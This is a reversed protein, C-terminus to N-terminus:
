VGMDEYFYAKKSDADDWTIIKKHRNIWYYNILAFDGACMTTHMFLTWLLSWTWLPSATIIILYVLAASIVLFPTLAVTIFTIAGVPYLHATVYFYYQQWDAGVRINRAGSLYYPVIHLLEHPLVLVLPLIVIGISSHMLINIFRYDSALEFRFDTMLIIIALLFSWALIIPFTHKKIYKFVFPVIEDYSLTFLHRYRKNGTINDVSKSM